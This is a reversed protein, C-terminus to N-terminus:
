WLLAELERARARPVFILNGWAPDHDLPYPFYGIHKRESLQGKRGYEKVAAWESVYASYGYGAMYEVIDHHSYVFHKDTREDCFEVFALEPAFKKFDYGQLAPLEAGEVDVKLLSVPEYVLYALLTVKVFGAPKHTPHWPQLSHIGWHEASTYFPFEGKESGVATKHLKVRPHEGFRQRLENFNQTEPEICIAQWGMEVFYRAFGGVHAGVDVLRKEPHSYPFRMLINIEGM